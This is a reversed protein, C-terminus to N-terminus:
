RRPTRANSRRAQRNAPPRRQGLRVVRFGARALHAPYARVSARNAEKVEEPLKDWPRLLPNTKKRRRPGRRWGQKRKMARWREHEMRAVVEIEEESVEEQSFQRPGGSWDTLPVVGWGIHNLQDCIADARRRNDEKTEASLQYWAAVAPNEEVSEGRHARRYEDHLAMALVEHTGLLFFTLNCIHGLLPFPRLRAIRDPGDALLRALGGEGETRVIIPFNHRRTGHLLTLGAQLSLTEDDFCIYAADAAVRGEDDLLFAGAEYEASPITIQRPVLEAARELQPYRAGLWAVREEAANDIMTIRARGTAGESQRVHWRRAVEVVVNTGLQGTGVVVLAPPRDSRPFPDYEALLALAGQHYLNFLELRFAQGDNSELERERM